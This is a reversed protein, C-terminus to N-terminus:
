LKLFKFKVEEIKLVGGEEIPMECELRKLFPSLYFYTDFNFVLDKKKKLHMESRLKKFNYSNFGYTKDIFPLQCCVSCGDSFIALLMFPAKCFM